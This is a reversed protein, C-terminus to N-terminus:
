WGDKGDHRMNQMSKNEDFVSAPILKYRLRIGRGSFLARFKDAIRQTVISCNERNIGVLLVLYQGTSYRTYMDGRRLSARITDGLTDSANNLREGPDLENGDMDTIMCLMLYVSQGSREVVRMVFRYSETFMLYNCFFAGDGEDTEVLSSRINELSAAVNPLAASIRDYIELMKPSPGLGLETFYMNTVNEFVSLAEKPRGLELLADMRGLHFEEDYSYITSAKDLMSNIAEYEKHSKYIEYATQVAFTYLKKLRASEVAVWEDAASSPLLEGKYLEIAQECLPLRADGSLTRLREVIEEFERVDLSLPITENWGCMGAKTLIYNDDPLGSAVLQRRLRHVTVRFTNSPDGEDDDGYLISFLQEKPFTKGDNYILYQLLCTAKSGRNQWLMIHRGDYTVDFGGLMDIRLKATEMQKVM